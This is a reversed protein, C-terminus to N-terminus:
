SGKFSGADISFDILSKISDGKTIQQTYGYRIPLENNKSSYAQYIKEPKLNYWSIHEMIYIYYFLILKFKIRM